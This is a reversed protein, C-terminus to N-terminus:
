DFFNKCIRQRGCSAKLTADHQVMQKLGDLYTSQISDDWVYTIVEDIFFVRSSCRALRKIKSDIFKSNHRGYTPSCLDWLDFSTRKTKEREKSGHVHISKVNFDITITQSFSSLTSPLYLPFTSPITFSKILLNLLHTLSSSISTKIADSPTLSHLHLNDKIPIHDVSSFLGFM